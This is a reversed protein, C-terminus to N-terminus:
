INQEYVHLLTSTATNSHHKVSFLVTDITYVISHQTMFPTLKIYAAHESM